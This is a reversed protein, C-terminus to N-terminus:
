VIKKVKLIFEWEDPEYYAPNFLDSKIDYDLYEEVTGERWDIIKIEEVLLKIGIFKKLVKKETKSDIYFHDSPYKLEPAYKNLFLKIDADSFCLASDLMRNFYIDLFEDEKKIPNPYNEELDETKVVLGGIINGGCKKYINDEEINFTLHNVEFLMIEYEM